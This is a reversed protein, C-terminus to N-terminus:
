CPNIFQNVAAGTIGAKHILSNFVNKSNGHCSHVTEVQLIPHVEHLCAAYIM